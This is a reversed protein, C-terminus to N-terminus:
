CAVANNGVKKNQCFFFLNTSILLVHIDSSHRYILNGTDYLEFYLHWVTVYICIKIVHVEVRM